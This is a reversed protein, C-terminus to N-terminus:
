TMIFHAPAGWGENDPVHKTVISGATIVSNKGVSTNPM